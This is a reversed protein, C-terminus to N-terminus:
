IFGIERLGLFRAVSRGQDGNICCHAAERKPVTMGMFSNTTVHPLLSPTLCWAKTKLASIFSGNTQSQQSAKM